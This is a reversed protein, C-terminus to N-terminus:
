RAGPPAVPPLGADAAAAGESAPRGPATRRESWLPEGPRPTREPGAAAHDGASGTDPAAPQRRRGRQQRRREPRLVLPTHGEAPARDDPAPRGNRRSPPTRTRPPGASPPPQCCHLCRHRCHPRTEPSAPPTQSSM